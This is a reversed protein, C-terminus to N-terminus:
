IARKRREQHSAHAQHDDAKAEFDRQDGKLHPGGVGVLPRGRRHRGKHANSGLSGAKSGQAPHHEVRQTFQVPLPNPHQGNQRCQRHGHAVQCRQALGVQLPHQGIGADGVGPINQRPHRGAVFQAGARHQEVEKSIGKHVHAGKGDDNGHAPKSTRRSATLREIVQGAQSGVLWAQRHRHSEKHERQGPHRRQGPEQGFEIDKTSGYM